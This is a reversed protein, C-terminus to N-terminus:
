IVLVMRLLWQAKLVVVVGAVLTSGVVSGGRVFVDGLSVHRTILLLHVITCGVGGGVGIM